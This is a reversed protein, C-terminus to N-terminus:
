SAKTVMINGTRLVVNHLLVSSYSCAVNGAEEDVVNASVFVDDLYIQTGQSRTEIDSPLKPRGEAHWLLFSTNLQLYDSM